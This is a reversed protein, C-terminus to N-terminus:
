GIRLLRAAYAGDVDDKFPLLEQELELKFQPNSGLFERVQLANEEPELSCTSYVLHGGPALLAAARRLLDSQAACLRTIERPQIRWRLDVRRRMVGTNSCPADLLIRNFQKPGLDDGGVIEARVGLRECNQRLLNLRIADPDFGTLEGENRMVQGFYTLKGGPAACLDLVTDGPKVALMEAALLTSPDQIYFKGQTFSALEAFPPHKKLEFVLNEPLWSRRVFDYDVGEARWQELLASAETRLTNVRAFAPPTTNNWAMLRSTDERGFRADWRRWLWEPHSFGLHPQGAKLDSLLKLIADRERLCGRLIANVFGTQAGFGHHKAIEVTESVAAHNPIRDLWFLQYLGLRLIAQLMPKQPRGDTKRAILFDLAGQWRVAGYVLEQCLHRDRSELGARALAHDLLTEVFEGSGRRALVEAAIERPKQGGM